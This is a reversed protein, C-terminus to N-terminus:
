IKLNIVPRVGNDGGDHVAIYNHVYGTYHVHWACYSRNTSASLTWYGADDGNHLNEILWTKEISINKVESYYPMRAYTNYEKMPTPPIESNNNDFSNVTMENINTWNKTAENLFNMATIPGYINLNELNKLDTDNGGAKKYDNGDIWRVLNYIKSQDIRIGETAPTGDSNINQAMILNVSVAEKDLTSEEIIENKVNRTNLVYFEYPEKNPDVKCNYKYGADYKNPAYKQESSPTCVEDLTKVYVIENKVNKTISKENILLETKKTTDTSLVNVIEGKEIVITGTTPAAGKVDIILKDIIKDNNKDKCEGTQNDYDELCIDGNSMIKYADNDIAGHNMISNALSLEVADLYMEASRLSANEKSEDIINIVIPVAIVAIIALIVIVALLEILTFGKKM